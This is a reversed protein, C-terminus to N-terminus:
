AKADALQGLGLSNPLSKPANAGYTQLYDALQKSINLLVESPIQRVIQDTQTDRIFLVLRETDEDREFRLYHGLSQLQQNTLALQEDLLQRSLPAPQTPETQSLGPNVAPTLETKLALAQGGPGTQKLDYRSTFSQPNVGSAAALEM